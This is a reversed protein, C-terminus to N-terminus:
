AGAGWLANASTHGGSGTRGCTGNGYAALDVTLSLQTAGVGTESDIDWVQTACAGPALAANLSLTMTVTAEGKPPGDPNLVRAASPSVSLESTVKPTVTINKAANGPAKEAAITATFTTNAPITTTGKNCLKWTFTGLTHGNVPKTATSSTIGTDPVFTVVHSPSCSQAAAPQGVLIVPVTWAAGAVVRRSVLTGAM